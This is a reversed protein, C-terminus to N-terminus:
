HRASSGVLAVIEAETLVCASQKAAALIRDVIEDSASIGRKGLWYVV